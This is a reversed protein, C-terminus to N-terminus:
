YKRAKGPIVSLTRGEHMFKIKGTMELLELVGAINEYRTIRGTFHLQQAMGSECKIDVDYWHKLQQLIDGLSAANFIFLGNKWALVEEIDARSVKVDAGRQVTAQYGPRLVVGTGEKVPAVKVAGSALTTREETMDTYANVNFSTGLVKVRSSGTKVIFPRRADGSVEFYAEGSLEVVREAGEFHTPFRLSSAANLWVRTGDALVVAYEGGRPTELTHYVPTAAAERSINYRLVSDRNRVHTGDEEEFEQKGNGQLVVEKGNSIVLKAAVGGRVPFNSLRDAVPPPVASPSGHRLLYAAGSGLLLLMAAAAAYRRLTRMKGPRRREMRMLLLERVRSRSGDEWNNMQTTIYAPDTMRRFLAENAPSEQRWADLRASEVPSITGEILKALLLSIDFHPDNHPMM